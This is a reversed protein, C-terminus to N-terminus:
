GIQRRSISVSKFLAFVEKGVHIDLDRAARRTITATLQQGDGLRLGLSIGGNELQRAETVTASIRNLISLGTPLQTGISIDSANIRIKVRSGPDLGTESVFVPEGAIEVETLRDRAHHRRVIGNLLGGGFPRSALADQPTAFVAEPVGTETIRGDRMLAIRDGLQFAEDISHTVYLMPVPRVSQVTRLYPLLQAKMTEDLSALPEDLLLIAPETLLARAIAVRQAEGGSLTAPIRRMLPELQMLESLENLTSGSRATFLLNQRVNMHPFLLSNQFVFGIRRKEPPLNQKDSFVKRGDISIHGSDPTLLGAIMKLVSSKGAGSPGFLVTTGNPTSLDVAIEM